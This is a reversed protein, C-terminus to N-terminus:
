GSCDDHAYEVIEYWAATYGARSISSLLYKDLGNSTIVSHLGGPVLQEYTTILPNPNHRRATYYKNSNWVTWNIWEPPFAYIREHYDPGGYWGSEYDCVVNAHSASSSSIPVWYGSDSSLRM